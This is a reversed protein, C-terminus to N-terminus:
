RISSFGVAVVVADAQGSRAHYCTEVIGKRAVARRALVVRRGTGERRVEEPARLRAERGGRPDLARHAVLQAAHADLEVARAEFGNLRAASSRAPKQSASTAM